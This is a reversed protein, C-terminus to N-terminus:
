LLASNITNTQKFILTKSIYKVKFTCYLLLVLYSISSITKNTIFVKFYKTCFM